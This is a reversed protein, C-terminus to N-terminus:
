IMVVAVVAAVAGVPGATIMAAAANDTPTQTAETATLSAAGGTVDLGYWTYSETPLDSTSTSTSTSTAVGGKTGSAEVSFSCSPTATTAAFTCDFDQTGTIANVGEGSSTWEGVLSYTQPGQIMTWPTAIECDTKPADSDCEIEYTTAVANIGAVSAVTSTWPHLSISHAYDMGGGFYGIRTTSSSEASAMAALTTALIVKPQM